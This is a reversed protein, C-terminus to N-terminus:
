LGIDVDLNSLVDGLGGWFSGLGDLADGVDVFTTIDSLDAVLTVGDIALDVVGSLDGLGELADPPLSRYRLDLQRMWEKELGFLVAYPLLREYLKLVELDGRPATLAGSPSQLMEFRDKEALQIYDHVGWLHDALPHAAATPDTPQKRWFVIAREIVGRQRALGGAVLRAVIRRHPDRLRSGLARNGSRRLVRRTGPELGPFIVQLIDREDLGPVTEPAALPDLTALELTFRRGTRAVRVVGRVAFDVVQAAIARRSEGLLEAAAVVSLGRTPEYQAVIVRSPRPFM